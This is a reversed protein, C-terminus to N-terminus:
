SAGFKTHGGARLKWDTNRLFEIAVVLQPDDNPREGTLGQQVLLQALSVQQDHVQDRRKGFEVMMEAVLDRYQPSWVNDLWWGSITRQPVGCIAAARNQSHGTALLEAVTLQDDTPRWQLATDTRQKVM